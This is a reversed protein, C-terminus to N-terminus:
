PVFLHLLAHDSINPSIIHLTAESNDHFWDANALIRDIRSCIPNNSQKNSWTFFDMISDLEGLGTTNMISPFDEYEAERVLNGGIHDQATLVNNYGGIVCWPCTAWRRANKVSNPDGNMSLRNGIKRGELDKITIEDILKRTIDVEVLIRAYSVRLKHATCEDRVLTVGVMSGIKNM